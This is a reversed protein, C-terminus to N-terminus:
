LVEKMGPLADDGREVIEAWERELEREDLELEPKEKEVASEDPEMVEKDDDGTV